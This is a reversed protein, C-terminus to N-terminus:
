QGVSLMSASVSRLARGLAFALCKAWLRPSTGAQPPTNFLLGSKKSNRVQRVWQKESQVAGTDILRSGNGGVSASVSKNTHVMTRMIGLNGKLYM